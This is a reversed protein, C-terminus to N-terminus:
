QYVPISFGVALVDHESVSTHEVVKPDGAKFGSAARVVAVVDVVNVVEEAAAGTVALPGSGLIRISPFLAQLACEREKEFFLLVSCGAPEKRILLILLKFREDKGKEVLFVPSGDVLEPFAREWLVENLAML